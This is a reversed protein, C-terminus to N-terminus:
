RATKLLQATGPKPQLVNVVTKTELVTEWTQNPINLGLQKSYNYVRVHLRALRSVYICSFCVMFFARVFVTADIFSECFVAHWRSNTVFPQITYYYLGGRALDSIIDAATNFCRDM